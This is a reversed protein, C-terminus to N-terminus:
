PIRIIRRFDVLTEEGPLGNERYEYVARVVEREVWRSGKGESEEEEDVGLVENYSHEGEEIASLDDESAKSYPTLTHSIDLFSHAGGYARSIGTDILLVKGGCRKLMGEFNPTHGMVLRRVGLKECTKQVRECIQKEELLAWDRNWMPGRESWFLREEKTAASPLSVPFPHDVLLEMLSHGIRNIESIPSDSTSLTELYEPIIGGHVFSIAGELDLKSGNSRRKFPTPESIFRKDSQGKLMKPFEVVSSTTPFSHTLFPVRATISYNTRWEQGIWGTSMAERRNREGGFSRDFTRANPTTSNIDNPNVYRWDGLANMIEHNGLLSVVTGGVKEAGARLSQMFKYCAITDVGRDVIDGTQVLITQGGIWQGRLDILEAKRLIKTLAPFDGHIDGIAVIRHQIIEEEGEPAVLPKQVTDVLSAAKSKGSSPVTPVSSTSSHEPRHTTLYLLISAFVFISLLLFRNTHPDRNPPPM